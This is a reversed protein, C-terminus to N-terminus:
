EPAPLRLLLDALTVLDWATHEVVRALLRADATRVFHHYVDPIQAGPIDDRRFRRCVSQELTQLRCDPLVKGWVRRSEHLLDLHCPDWACPLRSLSLRSRVCPLDFSKGNFSVLHKRGEMAKLFLPVTVVAPSIAFAVLILYNHAGRVYSVSDRLLLRGAPLVKKINGIRGGVNLIATIQPPLLRPVKELAEPSGDYDNGM